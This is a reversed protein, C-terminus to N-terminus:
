ANKLEKYEMGQSSNANIFVDFRQGRWQAWIPASDIIIGKDDVKIIATAYITSVWYTKM